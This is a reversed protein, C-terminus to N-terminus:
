VAAPERTPVVTVPVTAHRVVREAVSGLRWRQFGSRGHTAMVIMRVDEGQAYGVLAEAADDGKILDRGAPVGELGAEASKLYAEIMDPIPTHESDSKAKLDGRLRVGSVTVLLIEDGLGKAIRVAM